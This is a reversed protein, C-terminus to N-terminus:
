EVAGDEFPPAQPPHVFSRYVPPACCIEVPLYVRLPRRHYHRRAAAADNTAEIWAPPGREIVVEVRVVGEDERPVPLAPGTASSACPPRRPPPRRSARAPGCNPESASITPALLAATIPPKVPGSM